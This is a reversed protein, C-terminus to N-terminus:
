IAREAETHEEGRRSGCDEEFWRLRSKAVWCWSAQRKKAAEIKAWIGKETERVSQSIGAAALYENAWSKVSSQHQLGASGSHPSLVLTGYTAALYDDRAAVGREWNAIAEMVLTEIVATADLYNIYAIVVYAGEEVCDYSQHRSEYDDFLNEMGENTQQLSERIQELVDDSVSGPVVSSNTSSIVSSATTPTATTATSAATSTVKDFGIWCAALQTCAVVALITILKMM